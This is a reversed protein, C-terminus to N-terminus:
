ASLGARGGEIEISMVGIVWLGRERAKERTVRICAWWRRM